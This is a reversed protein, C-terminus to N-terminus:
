GAGADHAADASGDKNVAGDHAGDQHADPAAGDNHVTGDAKADAAADRHGADSKGPIGADVGADFGADPSSFGADYTPGTPLCVPPIADLSGDYGSSTPSLGGDIFWLNAMCVLAQPDPDLLVADWPAGTPSRCSYGGRCDDNTNCGAMCFSQGTRAPTQSSYPCGPVNANFLVCVDGGPCPSGLDTGTCNLITCYGGPESTDCVRTGDSACDTSLACSDGIEPACGVSAGGMLAVLGLGIALWSSSLQSYKGTAPM